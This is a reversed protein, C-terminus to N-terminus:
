KLSKIPMNKLWPDITLSSLSLSTKAKNKLIKIINEGTEDDLSGCPEDALIMKPNKILARAIAIRQKQGGSLESPFKTEIDALDIEQLLSSIDEEKNEKGELRLALEINEKVNFEDLLNFDQFIFGVYSKRYDDFDKEKFQSIKKGDVIMKGSDFSDLGGLINLLTTKGSGSKGLIFILGQNPLNLSVNDLALTKKKNKSKYTKNVNQLTIM